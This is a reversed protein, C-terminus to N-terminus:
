PFYHHCEIRAQDGMAQFVHISPWTCSISYSYNEQKPLPNFKTVKSTGELEVTGHNRRGRLREIISHPLFGFCLVAINIIPSCHMVISCGQLTGQSELGLIRSQSLLFKSSQRSPEVRATFGPCTVLILLFNWSFQLLFLPPLFVTINEKGGFIWSIMPM